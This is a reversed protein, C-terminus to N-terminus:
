HPSHIWGEAVALILLGVVALVTAAAVWVGAQAAVSALAPLALLGVLISVGGAVLFWNVRPKSDLREM